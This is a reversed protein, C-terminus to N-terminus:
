HVVFADHREDSRFDRCVEPIAPLRMSRDWPRGVNCNKMFDSSKKYVIECTEVSVPVDQMWVEENRRMGFCVDRYLSSFFVLLTTLVLLEGLYLVTYSISYLPSFFLSVATLILYALFLFFSIYLVEFFELKYFIPTTTPNIGSRSIIILHASVIMRNNAIRTYLEKLFLIIFLFSIIRIYFSYAEIEIFSFSVNTAFILFITIGPYINRCVFVNKSVVYYGVASLCTVLLIILSNITDFVTTVFSILKVVGNKKLDKLESLRLLHYIALIFCSFMVLYFMFVIRRRFIICIVLSVITLITETIFLFFSVEYSGNLRYDLYSDGNKFIQEINVVTRDNGCNCIIPRYVNKQEITSNFYDIDSSHNVQHVIKFTSNSQESCLSQASLDSFFMVNFEYYTVMFYLLNETKIETFIVEFVGDDIFGFDNLPILDDKTDFRYKNRLGLLVLLSTM